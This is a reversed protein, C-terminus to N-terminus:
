NAVDRVIVSPRDGRGGPVHGQRLVDAHLAVPRFFGVAVDDAAVVMEEGVLLVGGVANSQQEAHRFRPGAPAYAADMPVGATALLHFVVGHIGLPLLRTNRAASKLSSGGTVAIRVISQM